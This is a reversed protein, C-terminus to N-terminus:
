DPMHRATPGLCVQPPVDARGGHAEEKHGLLSCLKLLVVAQWAPGVSLSASRLSSLASIGLVGAM